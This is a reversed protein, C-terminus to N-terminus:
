YSLSEVLRIMPLFLGLIIQSTVLFVFILAITLAGTQLFGLSNQMQGDSLEAAQEFANAQEENQQCSVLLPCLWLPFINPYRLVLNALCEGKQADDSARQLDRRFARSGKRAAYNNLFDHLQIGRKLSFALSRFFLSQFMCYRITGLCPVKYWLFPMLTKEFLFLFFVFLLFACYAAGVCDSFAIMSKTFLPVETDFTEFISKFQPIILLFLVHFVVITTCVLFIPYAISNMIRLRTQQRLQLFRTQLSFCDAFHPNDFSERLTQRIESTFGAKAVAEQPIMGQDLLDALKLFPRDQPRNELTALRIAKSLPMGSKVSESILLLQENQESRKHNGFIKFM